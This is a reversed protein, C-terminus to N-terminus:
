LPQRNTSPWLRVNGISISTGEDDIYALDIRLDKPVEFGSKFRIEGRPWYVEYNDDDILHLRRDADRENIIVPVSSDWNSYATRYFIKPTVILRFNVSAGPVDDLFGYGLDVVDSQMLISTITGQEPRDVTEDPRRTVKPNQFGIYGLSPNDEDVLDDTSDQVGYITVVDTGLLIGKCIEAVTIMHRYKVPDQTSDKSGSVIIQVRPFDLAFRPHSEGGSVTVRILKEIKPDPLTTVTVDDNSISTAVFAPIYGAVIDWGKTPEDNGYDPGAGVPIRSYLNYWPGSANGWLEYGLLDRIASAVDM